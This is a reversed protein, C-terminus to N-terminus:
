RSLTVEDDTGGSAGMTARLKWGDCARAVLTEPPVSETELCRAAPLMAEFFGELREQAHKAARRRHVNITPDLAALEDAELWHVFLDPGSVRGMTVRRGLPDLQMSLTLTAVRSERELRTPVVFFLDRTTEKPMRGWTPGLSGALFRRLAPPASEIPVGYAAPDSISRLADFITEGVQRRQLAAGALMAETRRAERLLSVSEGEEIRMDWALLQSKAAEAHPGEPLFMLYEVARGRATKATEFFAPEESEFLQRLEDAFAGDPRAALYEQAARLREGMTTAVRVRRYSAYDDPSAAFRPLTTACGGLAAILSMIGLARTM